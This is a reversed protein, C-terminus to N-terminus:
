ESPLEGDGFSSRGLGAGEMLKRLTKKPPPRPPPAASRDRTSENQETETADAVAPVERRLWTSRRPLAPMAAEPAGAAATPAPRRLERSPSQLASASLIM